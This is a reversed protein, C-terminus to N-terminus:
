NVVKNHIKVGTQVMGWPGPNMGIFLVSKVGNLYKKLYACHLDAAYEIPNYVAAVNASLFNFEKLQVSLRCEIDYLRQWLPLQFFPSTINAESTLAIQENNSEIVNESSNTKKLSALKLKKRIM